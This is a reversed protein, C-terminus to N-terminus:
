YSPEPGAEKAFFSGKRFIGKGPGQLLLSFPSSSFSIFKFPTACRKKVRDDHHPHFSAQEGALPTAQGTSSNIRRSPRNAPRGNRTSSGNLSRFVPADDERRPLPSEQRKLLPRSGAPSKVAVEARRSGGNSGTWKQGYQGDRRRGRSVSGHDNHEIPVTPDHAPSGRTAGGTGCDLLCLM